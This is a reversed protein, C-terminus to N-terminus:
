GRGPHGLHPVQENLSLVDRVRQNARVTIPDLIMGSESRKVRDVEEAQRAISMNKHLVGIGGGAGHRDGDGIGTVTDMAASLLPVSLRITNTLNTRVDVDRSSRDIQRSSFSMTLVDASGSFKVIAV